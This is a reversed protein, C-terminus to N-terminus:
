NENIKISKNIKKKEAETKNRFCVVLVCLVTGVFIFIIISITLWIIRFVNPRNCNKTEKDYVLGEKCSDCNMKKDSIPGASCTECSIHCSGFKNIEENFYYGNPQEGKKYCYHNDNLFYYSEKCFTCYNNIYM